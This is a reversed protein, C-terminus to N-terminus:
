ETESFLQPNNDFFEDLEKQFRIKIIAKAQDITSVPPMETSFKLIEKTAEAGQVPQSQHTNIAKM